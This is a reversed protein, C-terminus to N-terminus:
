DAGSKRAHLKDIEQMERIFQRGDELSNVPTLSGRGVVYWGDHRKTIHYNSGGTDFEVGDSFRLKNTM